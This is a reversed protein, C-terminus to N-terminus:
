GGGAPRMWLPKGIYQGPLNNESQEFIASLWGGIIATQNNIADDTDPIRCSVPDSSKGSPGGGGGSGSSASSTLTSDAGLGDGLRLTGDGQLAGLEDMRLVGDEMARIYEESKGAKRDRDALMIRVADLEAQRNRALAEVLMAAQEATNEYARGVAQVAPVTAEIEKRLAIWGDLVSRAM